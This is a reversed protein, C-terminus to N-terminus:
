SSKLKMKCIGFKRGLTDGEQGKAAEKTNFNILALRYLTKEKLFTYTIPFKEKGNEGFM